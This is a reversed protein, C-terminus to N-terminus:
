GNSIDEIITNNLAASSPGPFGDAAKKEKHCNCDCFFTFGLGTWCEACLSHEEEKCKKAFFNITKV